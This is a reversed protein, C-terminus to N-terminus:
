ADCLIKEWLHINKEITHQSALLRAATGLERRTFPDLLTRLHQGWEHPRRVLLGTVGDQVFNSYPGTDSAICPIGLAAYELAKVYSKAQNFLHPRLPALGVQFDISRYLDPVSDIWRTFRYRDQALKRVLAPPPWGMVHMEVNKDRAQFRGVESAADAWDMQHSAGGAWGITLRDRTGEATPLDLVWGPVCNPAVYVNPNLKSIREALVENTTLVATAVQINLKINARIKPQSFYHWAPGNSPDVDLLDDDIEYVLRVREEAALQQWRSTPGPQSVRQGVIVDSDLWEDPMISSVLTEYQGDGNDRLTQAPLECRYYACGSSDASWFFIKTM